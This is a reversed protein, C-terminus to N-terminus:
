KHLTPTHLQLKGYAGKPLFTGKLALARQAFANSRILLVELAFSQKLLKANSTYAICPGVYFFCKYSVSLM